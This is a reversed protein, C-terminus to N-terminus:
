WCEAASPQTFLTHKDPLPNPIPKGCPLAGKDAAAAALEATTRPLVTSMDAFVTGPPPGGRLVAAFVERVAADDALMSFIVACNEALDEVSKVRCCMSCVQQLRQCSAATQISTVGSLASRTRVSHRLDGEIRLAFSRIYVFRGGSLM